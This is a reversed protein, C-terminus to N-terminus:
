YTEYDDVEPLEIVESVLEKMIPYDMFGDLSDGYDLDFIEEGSPRFCASLHGWRYRIYVSRNDETTGEWQSPCAICTNIITKVKIM